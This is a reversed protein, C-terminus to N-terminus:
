MGTGVGSLWQLFREVELPSDVFYRAATGAPPGVKVTIAEPLALFADEDTRDDGMFITPVDPGGLTESLWRAATGKNGVSRPRIELVSHGSFLEFQAVNPAFASDVAGRVRPHYEEPVQRFHVSATLRKNEILTGPIGDVDRAIADTIARLAPIARAAIPDLYELGGPGQIELGHNGAYAWGVEGVRPVIDHLGRGTIIGISARPTLGNLLARIPDPLRSDDPHLFLENLTGDFDSLILWRPSASLHKRLKEQHDRLPAASM